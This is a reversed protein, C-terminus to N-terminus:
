IVSLKDWLPPLNRNSPCEDTQRPQVLNWIVHRLSKEKFSYWNGGVIPKASLRSFMYFIVNAVIKKIEYNDLHMDTSVCKKGVNPHLFPPPPPFKICTFRNNRFHILVGFRLEYECFSHQTGSGIKLRTQGCSEESTPLACRCEIQLYPSMYLGLGSGGRCKSIPFMRVTFHFALARRKGGLARPKINSDSSFLQNTKVFVLKIFHKILQIWNFARKLRVWRPSGILSQAALELLRAGLHRLSLAISTVSFVKKSRKYETGPSPGNPGQTLLRHAGVGGGNV